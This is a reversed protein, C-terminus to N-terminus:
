VYFADQIIKTRSKMEDLLNVRHEALDFEEVIAKLEDFSNVIRVTKLNHDVKAGYQLLNEPLKADLFNPVIILMASSLMEYFTISNFTIGINAKALDDEDISGGHILKVNEYKKAITRYPGKFKIIWDAVSIENIRTLLTTFNIPAYYEVGPYAYLVITPKKIENMKNDKFNIRPSKVEKIECGTVESVEKLVRSAPPGYTRIRDIKYNDWLGEKRIEVFMSKNIEEIYPIAYNEHFIVDVNAQSGLEPCFLAFEFYDVGGFIYHKVRKSLYKRTFHMRDKIKDRQYLCTIQELLDNDMGSMIKRIFESNILAIEQGAYFFELDKRFANRSFGVLSKGRLKYSIYILIVLDEIVKYITEIM